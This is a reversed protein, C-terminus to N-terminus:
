GLSEGGDRVAERWKEETAQKIREAVDIRPQTPGDANEKGYSEKIMADRERHIGIGGMSKSEVHDGAEHEQHGGAHEFEDGSEVEVSIKGFELV